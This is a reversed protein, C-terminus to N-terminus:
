KLKWWNYNYGDVSFQIINNTIKKSDNNLLSQLNIANGKLNLEVQQADKSLNHMTIISKGNWDYRMAIVHKNKTKICNWNGWTIEPLSKRLHIMKIMWNLLSASDKQEAEVNINHYGFVGDNIVPRVTHMNTSFGANITDSWQMPTRVALREKLSLASGMGIEDGYRIMPDGPSALMLSYAMRMQQQNNKFMPALRLRVGRDYLQMNKQPGFAEFVKQQEKKSLKGMGMEDQNRLFNVWANQLPLDKMENMADEFRNKDNTALSYFLCQDAYFNFIINLKEGNEGFFDSNTKPSTSAEGLLFNNQNFSQTLQRMQKLLDYDFDYDDNKTQPIQTLYTVADIRFGAIGTQLWFKMVKFLENRVQMNQLNLDPEFNYFSHNYYEHATSDYTWIDKQVGKFVVGEHMNKPKDKSWVYWSHYPNNVNRAQQFWPHRISTHNFVLDIIVKMGR